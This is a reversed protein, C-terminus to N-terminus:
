TVHRYFGPFFRFGHEGPLDKRNDKGSDPVKVSRAKGGPIGKLEYVHVDFGREILEHAASLGAVGGGLIVVKNKKM